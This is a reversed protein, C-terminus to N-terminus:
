FYLSSFFCLFYFTTEQYKKKKKQLHSTGVIGGSIRESYHNKQVHITVSLKVFMITADNYLINHITTKKNKM